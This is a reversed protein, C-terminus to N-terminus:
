AAVAHTLVQTSRMTKGSSGGSHLHLNGYGIYLSRGLSSDYPTWLEGRARPLETILRSRNVQAGHNDLNHLAIAEMSKPGRPSGWEHRGHHSVILHLLEQALGNPFGEIAAIARDVPRAGLVIHGVLRGADTYDIDLDWRLEELKGIDHVLIGTLLLGRNIEPHLELLPWALPILEYVHELLGARYSHHIQRAAPAEM